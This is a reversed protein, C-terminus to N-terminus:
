GRDAPVPLSGLTEVLRFLIAVGNVLAVEDVDFSATHLIRPTSPIGVGLLVLASPVRSSYPYFDDSWAKRQVIKCTGGMVEEGVEQVTTVLTDCNILRPPEEGYRFEFKGGQGSCLGCSEKIADEFFKQTDRGLNVFRGKILAEKRGTEELPELSELFLSDKFTDHGLAKEFLAAVVMAGARTAHWGEDFKGSPMLKVTFSEIRQVMRNSLVGASGSNITGDVHLSLLYDLGNLAGEEIMKNSGSKKDEESVSESSPQLIIRVRNENGAQSILKAVGLVCAMNADHGCAHMYGSNRSAFTLNLGEQVPYGDMEARIGIFPSGERGKLEALIGTRAVGSKVEYGLENLREVLFQGTRHEAFGPEPISHLERRWEVIDKEISNVKQLLESIPM